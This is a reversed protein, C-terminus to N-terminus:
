KLRPQDRVAAERYEERVDTKCCRDWLTLGLVDVADPFNITLKRIGKLETDCAMDQAM